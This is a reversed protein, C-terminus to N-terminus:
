VVREKVFLLCKRGKTCLDVFDRKKMSRLLGREPKEELCGEGKCFPSMKPREYV